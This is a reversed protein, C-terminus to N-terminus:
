SDAFIRWNECSGPTCHMGHRKLMWQGRHQNRWTIVTLLDRKNQKYVGYMWCSLVSSMTNWQPTCRKQLWSRSYSNREYLYCISRSTFNFSSQIGFINKSPNSLSSQESSYLLPQHFCDGLGQTLCGVPTGASSERLCIRGPSSSCAAAKIDKDHVFRHSKAWLVRSNYVSWWCAPSNHFGGLVKTKDDVFHIRGPESPPWRTTRFQRGWEAQVAWSLSLEMNQCSKSCGEYLESMDGKLKWTSPKRSFARFPRLNPDPELKADMYFAPVVTTKNM